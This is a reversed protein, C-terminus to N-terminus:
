RANTPLPSPDAPDYPRVQTFHVAPGSLDVDVRYGKCNGVNWEWYSRKDDSLKTLGAMMTGGHAVLVVLREGRAAASRLLNELASCVRDCLMDMSEGGPCQGLCMGDVWARYEDDDEMDAASRGAFAGFDMEQIGDVIVQEADPFMIAATEHTRQLSSVYVRKVEPHTGAARAEARGTESLPQDVAGVYQRLANGPTQGHRIIILEMDPIHVSDKM